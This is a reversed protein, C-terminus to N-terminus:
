TEMIDPNVVMEMPLPANDNKGYLKGVNTFRDDRLRVPLKKVTTGGIRPNSGFRLSRSMLPFRRVLMLPMDLKVLIFSVSALLQSNTSRVFNRNSCLKMSDRSGIVASWLRELILTPSFLRLINGTSIHLNVVNCSSFIFFTLM